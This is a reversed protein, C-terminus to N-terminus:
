HSPNSYNYVFNRISVKNNLAGEIGCVFVLLALSLAIALNLHIFNHIGKFLSNRYILLNCVYSAPITEWM